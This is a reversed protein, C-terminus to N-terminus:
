PGSRPPTTAPSTSATTSSSTHRGSGAKQKADTSTTGSAFGSLDVIYIDTLNRGGGLKGDGVPARWGLRLNEVRRALEGARAV